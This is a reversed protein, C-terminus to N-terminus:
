RAVEELLEKAAASSVNGADVLVALRLAQQQGRCAGETIAVAPRLKACSALSVGDGM